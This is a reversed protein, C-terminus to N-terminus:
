IEGTERWFTGSSTKVEYSRPVIEDGVTGQERRDPIWVFDGPPAPSLDRARPRRDFTAKQKRRLEEEREVLLQLM